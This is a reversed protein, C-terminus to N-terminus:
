RWRWNGTTEIHGRPGSDDLGVRRNHIADRSGDDRAHIDGGVGARANGLAAKGVHLRQDIERDKRGIVKAGKRPDGGPQLVLERNALREEAQRAREVFDEFLLLEDHHIPFRQAQSLLLEIERLLAGVHALHRPGVHQARLHRHFRRALRLHLILAHEVEIAVRQGIDKVKGRVRGERDDFRRVVRPRQRIKLFQEAPSIRM